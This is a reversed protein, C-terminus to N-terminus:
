RREDEIGISNQYSLLYKNLNNIYVSLNLIHYLSGNGQRLYIDVKGMRFNGFAVAKSADYNGREIVAYDVTENVNHDKTVRILILIAKNKNIDSNNTVQNAYLPFIKNNFETKMNKGHIITWVEYIM